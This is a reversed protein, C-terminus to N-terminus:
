ASRLKRGTRVHVWVLLPLVVGAVWHAGSWLPRSEEGALYYLGYGTLTLWALLGLMSWGAAVNRQAALARRVHIQLLSGVWWLAAMAAAGHLKMSWPEFPHITPGFEGARRLFFHAALWALGSALLVGFVGYFGRRQWSPLRLGLATRARQPSHLSQRSIRM